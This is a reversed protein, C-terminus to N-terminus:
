ANNPKPFTLRLVALWAMTTVTLAPMVAVFLSALDESNTVIQFLAGAILLLFCISAFAKSLILKQMTRATSLQAELMQSLWDEMM